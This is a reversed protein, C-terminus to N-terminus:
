NMAETQPNAPDVTWEYLYIEAVEQDNGKLSFKIAPDWKTVDQSVGDSNGTFTGEHTFPGSASINFDIKKLRQRSGAQEGNADLPLGFLELSVISGPPVVKAHGSIRFRYVSESSLPVAGDVLYVNPTRSKGRQKFRLFAVDGDNTTEVRFDGRFASPPMINVFQTSSVPVNLPQSTANETAIEEKGCASLGALSLGAIM